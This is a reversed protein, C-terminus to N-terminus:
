SKKLKNMMLKKLIIKTIKKAEKIEIFPVYLLLQEQSWNQFVTFQNYHVFRLTKPKNQICIQNKDHNYNEV